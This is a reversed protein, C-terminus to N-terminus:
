PTHNEYPEVQKPDPNEKLLEDSVHIQCDAARQIPLNAQARLEEPNCEIPGSLASAAVAAVAPAQATSASAAGFATPGTMAVAVVAVPAFALSYALNYKRM